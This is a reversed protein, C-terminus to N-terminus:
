DIRCMSEVYPTDIIVEEALERHMGEDYPVADDTIRDQISIHGGVGVSRKSHLRKEGMGKGRTYQFM